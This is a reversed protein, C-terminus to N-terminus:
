RGVQDALLRSEETVQGTHDARLHAGQPTHCPCICAYQEPSATPCGRSTFTGSCIAHLRPHTDDLCSGSRGGSRPGDVPAASGLGIM